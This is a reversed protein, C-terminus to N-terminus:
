DEKKDKPFMTFIKTGTYINVMNTLIYILASAIVIAKERPTAGNVGIYTFYLSIAAPIFAWIIPFEVTVPKKEYEGALMTLVIGLLATGICFLSMNFFLSENYNLGSIIFVAIFNKELLKILLVAIGVGWSCLNTFVALAKAAYKM